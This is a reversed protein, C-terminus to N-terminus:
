RGNITATSDRRIKPSSPGAADAEKPVVNPHDPIKEIERKADEWAELNQECSLSAYQLYRM